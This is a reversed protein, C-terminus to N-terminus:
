IGADRGNKRQKRSTGFSRALPEGSFRGELSASLQKSRSHLQPVYYGRTTSIDTHGFHAQIDALDTGTESLTM